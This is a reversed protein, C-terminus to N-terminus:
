SSADTGYIVARRREGCFRRRAIAAWRAAASTGSEEAVSAPGAPPPARAPRPVRRMLVWDWSAGPLACVRKEDASRERAIMLKIRGPGEAGREPSRDGACQRAPRSRRASDCYKDRLYNFVTPSGRRHDPMTPPCGAPRSMFGPFQSGPRLQHMKLSRRHGIPAPECPAAAPGRAGRVGSVSGAKDAPDM